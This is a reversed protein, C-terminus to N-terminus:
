KVPLVVGTRGAHDRDIWHRVPGVVVPVHEHWFYRRSLDIAVPDLPRPGGLPTQPEIGGLDQDVRIPPPSHDRTVVVAFGRFLRAVVRRRCHFAHDDIRACVVPFAVERQAPGGRAGDNVLHVDTSEGAM